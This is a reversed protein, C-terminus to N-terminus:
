THQNALACPTNHNSPRGWVSGAGRRADTRARTPCPAPAEQNHGPQLCTTREAVRRTSARETSVRHGHLSPPSHLTGSRCVEMKQKRAQLNKRHATESALAQQLQTLLGHAQSLQEQVRAKEASAALQEQQGHNRVDQLEALYFHVQTLTHAAVEHWRVPLAWVCAGQRVSGLEAELSAVRAEAAKREDAEARTQNQAFALERSLSQNSTDAKVLKMQLENAEAQVNGLSTRLRAVDLNAAKELDGVQSSHRVRMQALPSLGTSDSRQAQYSLM